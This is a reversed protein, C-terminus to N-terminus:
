AELLLYHMDKKQLVPLAVNYVPIGNSTHGTHTGRHSHGHFAALCHHTDIPESLRTSGLFPFIEESEGIVTQRIPSYHLLVIKKRTKLSTLAHDLKLAEEMGAHVVDKLLQEGWAPLVHTDFGGIFGKVGAFGVEDIVVEDGDLIRCNNAMLIDTIKQQENKEWDHNGLVAIMPITVSQLQGVLVRAEEPLGHQTLDGCLLLVDANHSIEQFLAEYRHPHDVTVHLDGVAAITM